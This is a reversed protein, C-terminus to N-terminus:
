TDNPSTNLCNKPAHIMDLIFYGELRIDSQLSTM